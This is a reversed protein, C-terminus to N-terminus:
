QYIVTAAAYDSYAFMTLGYLGLTLGTGPRPMVRPTIDMRLEVNRRATPTPGVPGLPFGDGLPYHRHWNMVNDTINVWVGDSRQFSIVVNWLAANYLFGPRAGSHFNHGNITRLWLFKSNSGDVEINFFFTQTALASPSNRGVTIWREQPQRQTNNEYLNNGSWVPGRRNWDSSYRVWVDVNDTQAGASATHLLTALTLLAFLRAKM